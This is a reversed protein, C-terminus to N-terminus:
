SELRFETRKNLFVVEWKDDNSIFCYNLKGKNAGDIIKWIWCTYGAFGSDAAIASFFANMRNQANYFQGYRIEETNWIDSYKKQVDKYDKGIVHSAKAPKGYPVIGLGLVQVKGGYVNEGNVGYNRASAGHHFVNLKMGPKLKAASVKAENLEQRLLFYNKM